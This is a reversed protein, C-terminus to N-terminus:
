ATIEAASRFLDDIQGSSLGIATALSVVLASDRRWEAAEAWALQTFPDNTAEVAATADDLLNVALLAARAQFRSVVQPVSPAAPPPDVIEAEGRAIEEQVLQYDRNDDVKPITTKDILLHTTGLTFYTKM